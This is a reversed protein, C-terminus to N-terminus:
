KPSPGERLFLTLELQHPETRIVLFMDTCVIYFNSKASFIRLNDSLLFMMGGRPAIAHQSSTACRLNICMYCCVPVLTIGDFYVTYMGNRRAENESNLIASGPLNHSAHLCHFLHFGNNFLATDCSLLSPSGLTSLLALTVRLLFSRGFYGKLPRNDQRLNLMICPLNVPSHYTPWKDFASCEKTTFGLCATM